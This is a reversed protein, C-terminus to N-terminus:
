ARGAKRLAKACIRETEPAFSERRWRACLERVWEPRTKAADNLWNGVSDRPYRDKEARLPELLALAKEPQAKLEPLHASWVGRPRTCEVAFRRIRASGDKVWPLLLALAWDVDQAVHPRMAMWAWERVAFHNDDAVLRVRDLRKALPLGPAAGIMFAAWGRVMDSPHAAVTEMGELGLVEHLCEGAAAMRRSIGDGPRLRASFDEAHEPFAAQFLAEMDIALAEALSATELLGASLQRRTEESVDSVRAAGKRPRERSSRSARPADEEPKRPPAFCSQLIRGWHTSGSFVPHVAQESVVAADM